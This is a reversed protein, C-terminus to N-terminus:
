LNDNLFWKLTWHFKSGIKPCSDTTESHCFRCEKFFVDFRQRLEGRRSIYIYMYSYLNCQQMYMYMCVM